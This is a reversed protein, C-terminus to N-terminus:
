EVRFLSQIHPMPEEKTELNGVQFWMRSIAKAVVAVPEQRVLADQLARPRPPAVNQAGFVNYASSVFVPVTMTTCMMLVTASVVRIEVMALFTGGPKM